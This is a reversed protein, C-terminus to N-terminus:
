SFDISTSRTDAQPGDDRTGLDRWVIPDVGEEIAAADLVSEDGAAPNEAIQEAGGGAELQDLELDGIIEVLREVPRRARGM